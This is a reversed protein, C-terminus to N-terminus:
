LSQFRIIFLTSNFNYRCSFNNHTIKKNFMENALLYTVFISILSILIQFLIIIWPKIGFISYFFAILLPYGPTRFYNYDNFNHNNLLGLALNQYEKTDPVLFFSSNIVYSNWPELFLFLVLRILLAFILILSIERYKTWM